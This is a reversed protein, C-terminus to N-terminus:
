PLKQSRTCPLNSIEVVPLFGKGLVPDTHSSLCSGRMVERWGVCMADRQRMTLSVDSLLVAYSTHPAKDFTSFCSKFSDELSSKMGSSVSCFCHVEVAIVGM